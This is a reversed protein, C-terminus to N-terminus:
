FPGAFDVHIRKWPETPWVWPHLPAEQPASKVAKCSVCSKAVSEIDTDMGPWWMYSRAMAKMRVIGGYDRHLDSLIRVRLKAPVVVRVGWLLCGGEVTLEERRSYFPKLDAPVSSPWGCRTFHMVRSVQPDHRSCSGVKAATAPLAQIQGLNYCAADRSAEAGPPSNLLLRSLGDENAHEKTSRFQIQYNYASLTIAWRQLRAAALTPIAHYLGLITTLPKHDTILTFHRGYLYQHFRKVGFVLALAEKEVQAYKQEATTLTRSAYAIPREGGDAYKQSIEAGVGYASADSRSELTLYPQLSCSGPRFEAHRYHGSISRRVEQVM